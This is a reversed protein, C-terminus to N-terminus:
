AALATFGRPNKRNANQWETMLRDLQRAVDANRAIVNYAEAPDVSLDYLLPWRPTSMQKSKSATTIWEADLPIPWVYRNTKRIYKWNRHRVGQLEDYHYYYLTERPSKAATGTLVGLIDYGDLVRDEPLGVGALGFFTPFLDLNAILESSKSGAPIRGPWHAIFPVKFAGDYAKLITNKTSLYVPYGRQLGYSMSARAFDRISDTFNYMGMAVGGEKPVKVIEFEM